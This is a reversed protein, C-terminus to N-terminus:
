EKEMLFVGGFHPDLSPTIIYPQVNLVFKPRHLIIYFSISIPEQPIVALSLLWPKSRNPLITLLCSFATSKVVKLTASM